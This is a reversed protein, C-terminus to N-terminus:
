ASAHQELVARLERLEDILAVIGHGIAVATIAQTAAIVDASMGEMQREVGKLDSMIQRAQDEYVSSM